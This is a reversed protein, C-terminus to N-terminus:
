AADTRGKGRLAAWVTPDVGLYRVVAVILLGNWLAKTAATAVAAGLMGYPPILGLNLGVNVVAASGILVAAQRHHGTMTMLFGVSGAMANALQGVVLIVLVPYAGAYDTGFLGVVLWYGFATLIFALPLSSWAILQMAATVLRQLGDRDGRTHHQAILPSYVANVAFLALGMLEAFRQGVNYIGAETTGRLAGLLLIDTKTLLLQLGAIVALGAGTGLWERVRTVRHPRQRHRPWSIAVLPVAVVLAVVLGALYAGMAAPAGFETGLLAMALIVALLIAAPRLLEPVLVGLRVRELGRLLGGVYQVGTAAPLAAAAVVLSWLLGPDLRDSVVYLVLGALLAMALSAGFVLRSSFSLFGRLAGWEGGARYAAPFRIAAKDMGGRGLFALLPLWALAYAFAGYGEAGLHRALVVHLLFTLGAGAMRLVM